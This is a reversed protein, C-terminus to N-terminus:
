RVPGGPQQTLRNDPAAEQDYMTWINCEGRVKEVYKTRHSQFRQERIAMRISSQAEEFPERGADAREVVRVIHFGSADELIPSLAGVPLSFLAKDIVESRLSGRTTWDHIGGDSATAGDSHLKAIEAFNAGALLQNGLQALKAYATPKPQDSSVKVTLQEWRAKAEHEYDALHARYHQLMEDRTIEENLKLQMFMWKRALLGEIHSKRVRALSTGWKKFKLDLEARNELRHQELMKGLYEKDFEKSLEDEVKPLNDKPIKKKAQQAIMKTDLLGSLMNRMLQQRLQEQSEADKPVRDDNEALRENVVDLLEGALVAEGNIRAVITANDVAYSPLKFPFDTRLANPGAVPAATAFPVSKTAPPPVPVVGVPPGAPPSVAPPPQVPAPPTPYPPGSPATPGSAQPAVYQAPMVADDYVTQGDPGTQGDYVTQGDHGTQGRITLQRNVERWAQAYAAASWKSPSFRERRGADVSVPLEAISVPPSPDRLGDGSLPEDGPADGGPWTAPRVTALPATPAGPIHLQNRGTADQMVQGLEVTPPTLPATQGNAPPASCLVWACALAM